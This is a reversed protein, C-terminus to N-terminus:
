QARAHVLYVYADVDEIQDSAEPCPPRGLAARMVDLADRETIDEFLAMPEDAMREAVRDRLGRADRGEAFWADKIGGGLDHDILMCLAHERHGYSFLIGISSQAGLVDGYRWARLVALSAASAWRPAQVGRDVLDTAAVAALQRCSAPGQEAGLWLFGLAGSMALERCHSILGALLHADAAVRETEDLEEPLGSALVGFVSALALEADLRHRCSALADLLSGAV